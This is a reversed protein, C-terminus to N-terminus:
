VERSEINRDEYLEDYTIALKQWLKYLADVKAPDQTAEIRTFVIQKDADLEKMRARIDRRVAETNM